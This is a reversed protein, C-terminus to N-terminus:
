GITTGTYMKGALLNEVNELDDGKAIIVRLGLKEALKSAEPDFPYNGGPIHTDGVIKKFDKWHINEMRKADKHLRPDKDYAYDINSLNIITKASFVKALSVADKDTTCGPVWGSSVIIQKETPPAKKPEELIIREYAHKGFAVRMLEANLITSRIGIWDLDDDSPNNPKVLQKAADQYKRCVKGGGCVLVFRKERHRLLLAKFRQLFDTDIEEPVILSGGLSLIFTEM